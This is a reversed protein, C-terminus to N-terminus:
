RGGEHVLFRGYRRPAAPGETQAAAPVIRRRMAAAPAVPDIMRLSTVTLREMSVLGLWSPIAIPAMAGLIRAHTRGKHRLPLLVMELELPRYGSPGGRLGVVLPAADDLVTLLMREIAAKDEELWLDLVSCGKMERLFLANFRTGSLRVLFATTPGDQEASLIFTDSLINRIATPDIDAREPSCRGKRLGDWYSYLERSVAHRM